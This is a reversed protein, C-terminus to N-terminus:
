KDELKLIEEKDIKKLQKKSAKVIRKDESESIYRILLEKDYINPILDVLDKETNKFESEKESNEFELDNKIKHELIVIIGEEIRYKFLPHKLADELLNDDVENVNSKLTIGSCRYTNKGNYKVLAM